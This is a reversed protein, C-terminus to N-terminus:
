KTRLRRYQRSDFEDEIEERVVIKQKPERKKLRALREKDSLTRLDLPLQFLTFCIVSFLM